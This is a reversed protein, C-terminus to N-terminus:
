KENALYAPSRQKLILRSIKPHYEEQRPTIVIGERLISPNLVSKGNSAEQITKGALWERLTSGSMLIPVSDLHNLWWKKETCDVFRGDIKVDFFRVTQDKLKYITGQIGPGLAEGYFTVNSINERFHCKQILSKIMEELGLEQAIKHFSHSKGDVPKICFNRQNVYFIGTEIDFSFSANMGEVKETIVVEKDMLLDAVEVYRDAGEIDYESLYSPLGVLLGNQDLTVPPEYKTIGLFKTMEEPDQSSCGDLLSIPGVLGQSLVNRLTVTRLRNNHKGRLSGEMVPNGSEDFVLNGEVKKQRVLNMKQMLEFPFLSDIPFYIVTQGPSYENKGIVFQFNKDKITAVSIKDAGPIDLVKDIKEITVGFFSM